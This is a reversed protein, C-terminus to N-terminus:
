DQVQPFDLFGRTLSKWKPEFNEECVGRRALSAHILTPKGYMEAIIGVHCPLYGDRLVVVAGPRADPRWVLHNTLHEVLRGDPFNSYDTLDRIPVDFTRGVLVLLGICDLGMPTRGKHTWRAPKGNRSTKYRRAEAIIEDRTM